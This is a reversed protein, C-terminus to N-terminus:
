EKVESEGGGGECREGWGASGVGGGGMEAMRADKGKVGEGVGLVERGMKMRGVAGGSKERVRDV